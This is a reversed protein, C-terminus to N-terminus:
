AEEVHWVATPVEKSAFVFKVGEIFFLNNLFFAGQGTMHKLWVTDGPERFITELMKTLTNGSVTVDLEAPGKAYKTGAWHALLDMLETKYGQAPMALPLVRPEEDDSARVDYELYVIETAERLSGVSGAGWSGSTLALNTVTAGSAGAVFVIECTDGYALVYPTGVSGMLSDTTLSGAALAYVVGVLNPVFVSGGDADLPVRLVRRANPAIVINGEASWVRRSGNPQIDLDGHSGIRVLNYFGTASESYG